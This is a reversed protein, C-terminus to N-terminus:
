QVSILTNMIIHPTSITVLKICVCVSIYIYIYIYIFGVPTLIIVEPIAIADCRVILSAEQFCIYSIYAHVHIHMYLCIHIYRYTIYAIWIIWNVFCCWRERCNYQLGAFVDHDRLNKNNESDAELFWANTNCPMIAFKHIHIKYINWSTKATSLWRSTM